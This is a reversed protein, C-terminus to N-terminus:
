ASSISCSAARSRRRRAATASTAARDLDPVAARPVRERDERDRQVQEASEPAVAASAVKEDPEGWLPSYADKYLALDEASTFVWADGAVSKFRTLARQFTKDDLGPPLPM